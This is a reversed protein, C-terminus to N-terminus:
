ASEANTKIIGRLLEVAVEAIERGTEGESRRPGARRFSHDGGDVVHLAALPRLREVLAEMLDLRALADRSGQIFIMPIGIRPLHADRPRDPRGPPHLPYGFFVLARALFDAGREAALMSAMRGGM